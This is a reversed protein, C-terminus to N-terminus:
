VVKLKDDDLSSERLLTMTKKHFALLVGFLDAETSVLNPQPETMM